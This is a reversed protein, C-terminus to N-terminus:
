GKWTRRLVRVWNEHTIKRLAAADYGHEQLAAVVKRLGAVDGIRSSVTAGDFDSGLGVRDIGIRGAIYDVHRVIEEIPTDPEPRGDARLDRVNFNV